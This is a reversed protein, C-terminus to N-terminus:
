SDILLPIISIVKIGLLFQNKIRQSISPNLFRTSFPHWPIQAIHVIKHQEAVVPGRQERIPQRVDCIHTIECDPEAAFSGMMM